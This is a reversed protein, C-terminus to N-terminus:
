LSITVLGTYISIPHIYFFVLQGTGDNSMHHLMVEEALPQTNFHQLNYFPIAFNFHQNAMFHNIAKTNHMAANSKGKGITAKGKSAVYIQSAPDEGVIIAVLGPVNKGEAKLQSIKDKLESRIDAAVKKGDILIM